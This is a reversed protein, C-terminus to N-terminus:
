RIQRSIPEVTKVSGGPADLMRVYPLRWDKAMKQAFGAKNGISGVGRVTFDDGNLVVKRGNMECVGIASTSPKVNVLKNDEYTAAGALGGIEKFTGKDTILEIRERVTLKGRGHQFAVSEEGGMRAAFKRRLKLEEIEPEWVM